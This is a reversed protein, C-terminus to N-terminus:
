VLIASIPLFAHKNKFVNELKTSASGKYFYFSRMKLIAIHYWNYYQYLYQYISTDWYRGSNELIQLVLLYQDNGFYSCQLYRFIRLFVPLVLITYWYQLVLIAAPQKMNDLSKLLPRRYLSGARDLGGLYDDFFDAICRDGAFYISPQRKRHTLLRSCSRDIKGTVLQTLFPLYILCYSSLFFSMVFALLVFIYYSYTSDYVRQRFRRPLWRFLWCYM